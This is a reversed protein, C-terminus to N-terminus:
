FWDIAGDLVRWVLYERVQNRRYVRLKTNLDISASSAAIEAVLEPAGEIYDDTSIKVRGGHSPEVIMVADPQPENELDVRVTGNDGVEVGPTGAQYTGLWGILDAHRSAHQRWRVPSPLYVVGEILEAKKLNPMADYRREFEERTLHDGSELPPIPSEAPPTAPTLTEPNGM